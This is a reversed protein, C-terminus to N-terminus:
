EDIMELRRQYMGGKFESKLWVDIISIALEANVFDAPLVLVNANDDEKASRAIDVNWCLAAYIGKFRNAAISAGVGSGCLVIGCMANDSLIDECVRRAFIPYDTRQESYTGVDLWEHEEGHEIINTKLAYGRHDAGISIKM